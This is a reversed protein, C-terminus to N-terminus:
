NIGARSPEEADLRWVSTEEVLVIQDYLFDQKAEGDGGMGETSPLPEAEFECQSPHYEKNQGCM